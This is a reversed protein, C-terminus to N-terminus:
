LFRRGYRSDLARFLAELIQAVELMEEHIPRLKVEMPM